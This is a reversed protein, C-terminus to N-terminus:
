ISFQGSSCKDGNEQGGDIPGSNELGDDDSACKGLLYIDKLVEFRLDNRSMCLGDKKARAKEINEEFTGRLEAIDDVSMLEGSPYKM